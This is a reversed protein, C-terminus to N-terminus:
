REKEEAIGIIATVSKAPSMLLSDNLTVGITRPCDLARIIDRQIDLPLDGYGPSFRPRVVRGNREAEQRVDSEFRDCLAEVRETGLAQLCLARSPSIRSYRRIARDIELGVTAAFVVARDCGALHRALSASRFCVFGLSVKDGSVTVDTEVSCVKYSFTGESQAVCDRVLARTAENPAGDRMYRCVAAEDVPPAPYPTIRIPSTM